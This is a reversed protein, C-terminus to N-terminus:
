NQTRHKIQPYDSCANDLQTLVYDADYDTAEAFDKALYMFGDNLEYDLQTKAYRTDAAAANQDLIGYQSQGGLMPNKYGDKEIKRNVNANSSFIGRAKAFEAAKNEDFIYTDLFKRALSGNDASKPVFLFNGDPAIWAAPGQTVRFQGYSERKETESSYEIANLTGFPKLEWASMFTGLAHAVERSINEKDNGQFMGTWSDLYWDDNDYREAHMTMYGKQCYLRLRNLFDTEEQGFQLMSQEDLWPTRRLSPFVKAFDGVWATIKCKNGSLEALKAATQDFTEWDKVFEQMEAPTEAGLYLKALDARYVYCGPETYWSIGTPVDNLGAGETMVANYIPEFDADKFGLDSLPLSKESNATYNNLTHGTVICLDADGGSKLYTELDEAKGTDTIDGISKYEVLDTYQPYKAVFDEVMEMPETLEGWGVITLKEGTNPVKMDSYAPSLFDAWTRKTNKLGTACYYILITQADAVDLKTDKNIDAASKQEATLSSEKGAMSRSYEGLALQADAVNVAGDGNVDGRTYVAPEAASASVAGFATVATLLALVSSLTKRAGQKM